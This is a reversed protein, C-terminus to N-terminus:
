QEAILGVTDYVVEAVEKAAFVLWDQLGEQLLCVIDDFRLHIQRKWLGFPFCVPSRVKGMQQLFKNFALKAWGVLHNQM